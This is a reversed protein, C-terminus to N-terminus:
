AEVDLSGPGEAGAGPRSADHEARDEHPEEAGAGEVAGVVTIDDNGQNQAEVVNTAGYDEEPVQPARNSKKLM